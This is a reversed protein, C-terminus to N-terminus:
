SKPQKQKKNRQTRKHERGTQKETMKSSYVHKMHATRTLSVPWLCVSLCTSRCLSQYTNFDWGSMMTTITCITCVHLATLTIYEPISISLNPRHLLMNPTDWKVHPFLHYTLYPIPQTRGPTNHTTTSSLCSSLFAYPASVRQQQLKQGHVMMAATALTQRWLGWFQRAITGREVRCILCAQEYVPISVPQSVLLWLERTEKM